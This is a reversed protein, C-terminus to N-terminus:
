LVPGPRQGSQPCSGAGRGFPLREVDEIEEWGHLCSCSGNQFSVCDDVAGLCESTWVSGTDRERAPVFRCESVRRILLRLFVPLPRIHHTEPSSWTKPMRAEGSGVAQPLHRAANRHLFSIGVWGLLRTTFTAEPCTMAVM